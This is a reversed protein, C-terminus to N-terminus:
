HNPSKTVHLDHACAHSFLPQAVNISDTKEVNDKLETALTYLKEVDDHIQDKNQKLIQKPDPKAGNDGFPDNRGDNVPPIGQPLKPSPNQQACAARVAFSVRRPETHHCSILGWLRDGRLLSLESNM